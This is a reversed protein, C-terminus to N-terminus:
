KSSATAAPRPATVIEKITRMILENLLTDTSAAAQDVSKGDKVAKDVLNEWLAHSRLAKTAHQAKITKVYLFLELSLLTKIKVLDEYASPSDLEPKKIYDIHSTFKKKQNALVTDLHDPNEFIEQLNARFEDSRVAALYIDRPTRALEAELLTDIEAFDKALEDQSAEAIKALGVPQDSKDMAHAASGLTLGIAAILSLFQKKM